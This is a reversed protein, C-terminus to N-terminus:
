VILQVVLCNLSMLVQSANKCRLKVYSQLLPLVLRAILLLSEGVVCLTTSNSYM